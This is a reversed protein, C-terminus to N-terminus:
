TALYRRLIADVTEHGTPYPEDHLRAGAQLLQEIVALQQGRPENIASWVATDLVNGGYMSKAELPAQHRLLLRVAEIQGRNAAWHIANLGTGNGGAPDVGHELLYAAVSKHGLFSACTLAEALAAPENAFRGEQHWRVIQTSTGADIFLPELRSFDGNRLGQVAGRFMDDDDNAYPSQM